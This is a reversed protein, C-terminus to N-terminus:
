VARPTINVMLPQKNALLGFIKTKSWDPLGEDTAAIDFSQTLNQNARLSSLLPFRHYMSGFYPPSSSGSNLM